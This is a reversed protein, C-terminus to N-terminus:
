KGGTAYNMITEQSFAGRNLEGTVRGGSMVYIRDCMGIIEPLESSIMIISVGQESLANIIAYIEAKAGVDVGRTPEDLILIQPHSALWKGILVKQQNGGSLNGVRQRSSSAKISMADVYQDIIKEEKSRDVHIGRIFEGLVALTLNFGVSNKLVLGEKKRDEPVLAVGVKLADSIGNLMVPKGGVYVEGGTWKEIGIMSKMLESRGSGILGAFGLIEGKRLFFSGDKVSKGRIHKAELVRDGLPRETHIYYEDLTRGVMMKILENRNTKETSVTGVREGDRMVTIRDCIRFLEELKHSIYIIGINQAKLQKILAFLHEVETDTLSSTPEDMVVIKAKASIAKVIEVMQQQAISLTAVKRSADINMGFGDILAQAETNMRRYNVGGLRTTPERGMFINEAITMNPVLMIEQHIISIGTERADAVSNILTEKGQIVIKGEEARYIGGLVKILTSKGAGNEGLLAHVEGSKLDFDVNKLAYVGPFKKHINKMQLLLEALGNM